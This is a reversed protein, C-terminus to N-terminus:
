IQFLLFFFVSYQIQKRQRFLTIHDKLMLSYIINYISSGIFYGKPSIIFKLQEVGERHDQDNTRSTVSQRCFTNCLCDLVRLISPGFFINELIIMMLQFNFCVDSQSVYEDTDMIHKRKRDTAISRGSAMEKIDKGFSCGSSGGSSSSANPNLKDEIRKSRDHSMSVDLDNQSPGSGCHSPGVTTVSYQEKGQERNGSSSDTLRFKPPPMVQPPDPSAKPRVTVQPPDPGAKPKVTVSTPRQFTDLTSFFHSSFDNTEFPDEDPPYQIWSVTEQDELFTNSRLAEQHHDHKQSQERHTQSQLVVQGDRWLLEMLEDQPRCM